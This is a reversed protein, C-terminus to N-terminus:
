DVSRDGLSKKFPWRRVFGEGEVLFGERFGFFKWGNLGVKESVEGDDRMEVERERGLVASANGSRQVGGRNESFDFFGIVSRRLQTLV